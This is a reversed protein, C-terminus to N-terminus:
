VFHLHMARIQGCPFPSIITGGLAPGPCSRGWSQRERSDLDLEVKCATNEQPHCLFFLYIEELVPDLIKEHCFEYGIEWRQGWSADM